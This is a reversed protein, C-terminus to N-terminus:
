KRKFKKIDIRHKKIKVTLTQRSLGLKEGCKTLNGQTSSLGLEILNREYENVMEQLSDHFNMTPYTEATVRKIKIPSGAPTLATAEQIRQKLYAPIHQLDLIEEAESVMNMASEITNALERINGPWDYACLLSQLSSSVGTVMTNLEANAKDIFYQTLLSLDNGRDRLPPIVLMGTSLRYFLDERMEKAQIAELPMKNTASIIRCNIKRTKGDGIRRVEKEQLARLLKAQLVIPMSNIEDLFITGREAKEFLGPADMAGTFAGRVTGFLMSELLNDPIAACNIPVFPGSMYDSANHISQAIMEKGTGTEGYIMVPMKKAAYRKAMDLMNLMSESDGVIDDFIFSTGNQMTKKRLRYTSKRNFAGIDFLRRKLDQINEAFSIVAVTEGGRVVPYTNTIANVIAGDTLFWELNENIQPVGTKLVNLCPSNQSKRFETSAYVNRLKKGLMDQRSTHDLEEAARNVYIMKEDKDVIYIAIHARELVEMVMDNPVRTNTM